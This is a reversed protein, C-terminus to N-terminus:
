RCGGPLPLRETRNGKSDCHRDRRSALRHRRTSAQRSRGGALGSSGAHDPDRLRSLWKPTTIDCSALLRQVQDPDLGKPLGTLRRGPVTPVASLLSRDIAGDVHLFGLLSRLATVALAAMGPNLRRCTTLVFSIVDAATMSQFDLALGDPLIRTQLFPRILDIYRCATRDQIGREVEFLQRYRHLFAELGGAASAPLVPPAIGLGRLYGLIPQMARISPLFRHGAAYRDRQFREVEKAGLEEVCLGESALWNSLHNLLWIQKRAPKPKYGRRILHDTFEAALGSLPGSVRVRSLDILM